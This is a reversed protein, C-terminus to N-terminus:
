AVRRKRDRVKQKGLTQKCRMVNLACNFGPSSTPIVTVAVPEVRPGPIAKGTRSTTGTSKLVRFKIRNYIEKAEAHPLHNEQLYAEVTGQTWQEPQAVMLMDDITKDVQTMRGEKSTITYMLEDDIPDV